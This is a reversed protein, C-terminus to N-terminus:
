QIDCCVLVTNVCTGIGAGNDTGISDCICSIYNNWCSTSCVEQYAAGANLAAMECDASSGGGPPPTTDTCALPDVLGACSPENCDGCLVAVNQINAASVQGVDTVAFEYCRIDHCINSLDGCIDNPLQFNFDLTGATTGQAGAVPVTRVPGSDGFRIGAGVVNGDMASFPISVTGVGGPDLSPMSAPMTGAADIVVTSDTTPNELPAGEGPLTISSSLKAAAADGVLGSSGGGGGSGCAALLGPTVVVLASLLTKVLLPAPRHM